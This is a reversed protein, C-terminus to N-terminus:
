HWGATMQQQTRRTRPAPQPPPESPTYLTPGHSSPDWNSQTFESDVEDNNNSQPATTDAPASAEAEGQEGSKDRANRKRRRIPRPEENTYLEAASADRRLNGDTNTSTIHTNTDNSIANGNNVEPGQAKREERRRHFAIEDIANDIVQLMLEKAKWHDECDGLIPFEYELRHYCAMLRDPDQKALRVNLSLWTNYVTRAMRRVLKYDSGVELYEKLPIRGITSISRKTKDKRENKVQKISRYKAPAALQKEPPKPTLWLKWEANAPEEGMGEDDANTFALSTNMSQDAAGVGEVDVEQRSRLAPTVSTSSTSSVPILGADELSGMGVVAPPHHIHMGHNHLPNTAVPDRGGEEDYYQTLGLAAPPDHDAPASESFVPSPLRNYSEELSVNSSGLNDNTQHMQQSTSNQHRSTAATPYAPGHSLAPPLPPAVDGSLMFSVTPPTRKPLVETDFRHTIAAPYQTRPHVNQSTGSFDFSSNSVENDLYSPVSHSTSAHMPGSPIAATANGQDAQTHNSNMMTSSSQRVHHSGERSRGSEHSVAEYGGSMPQRRPPLRSSGREEQMSLPARIAASNQMNGADVREILRELLTIVLEHQRVSTSVDGAIQSLQRNILGWNPRSDSSSSNSKATSGHEAARHTTRYSSTGSNRPRTHHHSSSYGGGVGGGGAAAENSSLIAGNNGWVDQNVGVSTPTPYYPQYQQHRSPSPASGAQHNFSSGGGGGGSSGGASQPPHQLVHLHSSTPPLRTPHFAPPSHHTYHSLPPNISHSSAGSRPHPYM